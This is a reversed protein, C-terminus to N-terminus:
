ERACDSAGLESPAFAFREVSLSAAIVDLQLRVPVLPRCADNLHKSINALIGSGSRGACETPHVLLVTNSDHHTTGCNLGAHDAERALLAGNDEPLSLGVIQNKFGDSSQKRLGIM